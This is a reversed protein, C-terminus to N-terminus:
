EEFGGKGVLPVFRCGISRELSMREGIRRAVVIEQARRWDGVPVVM